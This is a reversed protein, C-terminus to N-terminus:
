PTTDLGEALDGLTNMSAFLVSNIVGVPLGYRLAVQETSLPAKGDLGFRRNVIRVAVEPLVTQMIALAMPKASLKKTADKAYFMEEIKM